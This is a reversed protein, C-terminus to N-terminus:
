YPNDTAGSSAHPRVHVHGADHAHQRGGDHGADHSTGGDHTSTTMSADAVMPEEVSADFVEVPAVSTANMLPAASTTDAASTLPAASASPAASTTSTPTPPSVMAAIRDRLAFAVAGAVVVLVVVVLWVRSKEERKPLERPVLPQTVAKKKPPAEADKAEVAQPKAAIREPEKPPEPEPLPELKPELEPEPKPEPKLELKPADPAKAEPPEPPPEPPEDPWSLEKERPPGAPPAIGLMTRERTVKPKPKDAGGEDHQEKPAVSEIKPPPTPAMMGLVTRERVNKKLGVIRDIALLADNDVDIFKIGLGAPLEGTAQERAWIVRGMGSITGGSAVHVEFDIRKGVALKSATAVFMGGRGIDHLTGDSPTDSAADTFTVRSADKGRADTRRETTM